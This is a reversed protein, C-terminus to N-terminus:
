FIQEAKLIWEMPDAGNFKPFDLRLSRAHIGGNGEFLPNNYQGKAYFSGEGSNQNNTQIALQDYNAALNNIQQLVVELMSQQKSQEERLNVTEAKLMSVAKALQAQQTGEAMDYSRLKSVM